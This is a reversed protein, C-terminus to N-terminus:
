FCFHSWLDFPVQGNVEYGQASLQGKAGLREDGLTGVAEEGQKEAKRM